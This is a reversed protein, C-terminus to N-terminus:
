LNEGEPCDSPVSSTVAQLLDLSRFKNPNNRVTIDLIAWILFMLPNTDPCIFIIKSGFDFM